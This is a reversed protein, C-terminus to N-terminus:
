SGGETQNLLMFLKRECEAPNVAGPPTYIGEGEREPDVGRIFFYFVGAFHRRFEDVDLSRLVGASKLWRALAITYLEYQLTYSHEHMCQEMALASYDNGQLWNSKWDLIGYRWGGADEDMVRFVLDIFGTLYGEKRFRDAVLRIGHEKLWRTAAVGGIEDALVEPLPFQFELEHIRHDGPPSVAGGVETSNALEALRFRKGDVGPVSFSAHLTNWVIKAIQDRYSPFADGNQTIKEKLGYKSMCMDILEPIGTGTTLMGKWADMRRVSEFNIQEFIEHFTNGTNAGRPLMGAPFDVVPLRTLMPVDDGSATVASDDIGEDPEKERDQEATFRFMEEPASHEKRFVDKPDLISGAISSFSCLVNTRQKLHTCVGPVPPDPPELSTDALESTTYISDLAIGRVEPPERELGVWELISVPMSDEDVGIWSAMMAPYLFRGVPGETHRVKGTNTLSPCKKPVYLKFMARTLAVYYLRRDEDELEERSKNKIGGEGSLSYVTKRDEDHYKYYDYKSSYGSGVGLFVIPWQLGKSKHITVIQVKPKETELRHIDVDEDMEISRRRYRNLRECIGIFDLHGQRAETEMTQLIQQYNTISRETDTGKVLMVGTEDLLSQFLRSWARRGALEHWRRFLEKVFHEPELDEYKELDEVCVRFFPTLLAKKFAQGNTPYAIADFLYRLHLAEESQYLGRKKYYSHAVGQKHLAEEIIPVEKEARVLICIDDPKLPRSEGDSKQKFVFKPEGTKEVPELLYRIERAIWHAVKWVAKRRVSEPGLDMVTVADRATADQIVKVNIKDGAPSAAPVYKIEGSAFWGGDPQPNTEDREHSTSGPLFLENLARTLGPISRWNTELREPERSECLVQERADVYTFVDAGRFGYIAQKPDGILFLRQRDGEFFIRELIHWQVADTDQFEDILAYKYQGRLERVLSESQALAQELRILMDDYSLLGMQEKYEGGKSQLAKITEMALYNTMFDHPPLEPMTDLLANLKDALAELEGGPFVEKSNKGVLFRFGNDAFGKYGSCGPLLRLFSPLAFGGSVTAGLFAKLPACVKGKFTKSYGIRDFLELFNTSLVHDRIQPVAAEVAWGIKEMLEQFDAMEEPLLRDGAEPNWRSTLNLVLGEWSDRGERAPTYDSLLLLDALNKGYKKPWGNRMISRLVKEYVVRDETLELHFPQGTEFPFQQLARHCFGHITFITAEDFRDFAEQLFVQEPTGAVQPDLRQRIKERVRYQLEGTAKETFTLVLIEDIGARLDADEECLIRVLLSEIAYTKGTGASAEIVGHRRLDITDYLERKGM